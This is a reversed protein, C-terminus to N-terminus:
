HMGKGGEEDAGGGGGVRLGCLSTVGSLWWVCWGGVDAVAHRVM